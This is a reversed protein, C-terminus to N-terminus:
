PVFRRMRPRALRGGIRAVRPVNHPKEVEQELVRVIQRLLNSVISSAPAVVLIPGTASCSIARADSLLLYVSPPYASLVKMRVAQYLTREREFTTAIM